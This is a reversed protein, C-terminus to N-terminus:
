KSAKWDAYQKKVAEYLKQIGASELEALMKDYDETNVGCRLSRSYTDMINFM